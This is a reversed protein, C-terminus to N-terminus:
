LWHISSQEYCQAGYATNCGSHAATNMVSHVLLQIVAVTCQKNMVSHVLLQIVAVTCQKNMVSHLLLQIVAVTHQQM